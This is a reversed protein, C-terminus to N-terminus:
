RAQPPGSPKREPSMGTRRLVFGAIPLVILVGIIASLIGGLDFVDEDGIGLLKTFLFWGVAAGILGLVLSVLWSAPGSMHRFVDGPMLVRGIVGALFGLILAGIM